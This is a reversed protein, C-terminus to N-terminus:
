VRLHVIRGSTYRSIALHKESDRFFTQASLLVVCSKRFERNSGAEIKGTNLWLLHGGNAKPTRRCGRSKLVIKLAHCGAGHRSVVHIQHACQASIQTECSLLVTLLRKSRSERRRFRSESEDVMM